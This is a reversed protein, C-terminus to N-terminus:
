TLVPATSTAPSSSSRANQCIIQRYGWGIIGVSDAGEPDFNDCLWQWWETANGISMITTLFVQSTLTMIFDYAQTNDISDKQSCVISVVFTGNYGEAYFGNTQQKVNACNTRLDSTTSAGTTIMYGLTFTSSDNFSLVASQNVPADVTEPQPPIQQGARGCMFGIVRTDVLDSYEM